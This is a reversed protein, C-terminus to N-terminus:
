YAKGSIQQAYGLDLWKPDQPIRDLNGLDIQTQLADKLAQDPVAVSDAFVGDDILRRVSARVVAPDLNPFLKLGSAVAAEPDKHIAKLARDIGSVFKQSVPAPIDQRTSIASFTYPGIERSFASVVKYGQAQAQSAGPEYLVACDAQGSSLPGIENGLPVELLNLDRKPDLGANKALKLFASSSTTPMAGTAITAGKLSKFGDFAFDQKCTLWVGLRNLTGGVVKVPAGRGFSIATWEPGHLSFDASKSIVAALANTSSSAVDIRVDLGAEKFYGHEEAFYVPLYFVSKFAASVVAKDNAMATASLLSAIAATALRLPLNAKM